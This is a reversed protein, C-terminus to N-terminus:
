KLFSVLSALKLLCVECHAFVLPAFTCLDSWDTWFRRSHVLSMAPAQCEVCSIVMESRKNPLWRKPNKIYSSVSNRCFGRHCVKGTEGKRCLLFDFVPLNLGKVFSYDTSPGANWGPLDLKSTWEKRLRSGEIRISVFVHFVIAYAQILFCSLPPYFSFYTHHPQPAPSSPM